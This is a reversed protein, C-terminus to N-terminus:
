TLVQAFIHGASLIDKMVNFLWHKAEKNNTSYKETIVNEFDIPIMDSSLFM